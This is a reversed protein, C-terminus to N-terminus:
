EPVVMAAVYSRGHSGDNSHLQNGVPPFVFMALIPGCIHAVLSGVDFSAANESLFWWPQWLPDVMAAMMPICNTLWRLVLSCQWLQAVSMHWWHDLMLLPQMKWEPVVMAAVSSTGHSGDNSYWQNAVLPGVFMAVIPGCVHAVLSGVDSSAANESLDWQPQWLPDIMAAMMPIGNTLWWLVLLCQWLQAVSIHWWHDLMLLPLM